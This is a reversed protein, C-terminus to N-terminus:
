QALRIAAMAAMPGCYWFLTMASMRFSGSERPREHAGYGVGHTRADSQPRKVQMQAARLVHLARATLRQMCTPTASIGSVGFEDQSQHWPLSVATSQWVYLVTPVTSGRM